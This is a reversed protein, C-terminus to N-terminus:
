GFSMRTELVVVIGPEERHMQERHDEQGRAAENNGQAGEGTEPHGSDAEGGVVM